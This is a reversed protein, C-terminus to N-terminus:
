NIRKRKIERATEYIEELKKGCELNDQPINENFNDSIKKESRLIKLTKEACDKPSDKFLLGNDGHNIIEPIVGHDLGVVPTGTALAELMVLGLTEFTSAFLFADAAGYYKPLEKEPVFGTFTIVDDLGKKSVLSEFYPKAPGDGVIFLRVDPREKKIYPLSNIILELNKEKSIRGVHLLLSEDEVGWRKRISQGDVDKNYRTRDITPPLVASHHMNPCKEKLEMMTQESPAIVAHSKKLLYRLYIWTLRKLLNDPLNLPSYQLADTVWTHFNFVCPLELFKSAIMARIGMFGMGHNHIVDINKESLLKQTRGTPYIAMRYDPYPKFIKSKFLFVNNDEESVKNKQGPAFIYVQHGLEELCKRFQIISNVVGDKTPLWTDTVMAIKM